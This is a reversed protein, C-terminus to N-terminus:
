KLRLLWEAQERFEVPFVAVIPHHESRSMRCVGDALIALYTKADAVDHVLPVDAHTLVVRGVPLWSLDQLCEELADWNGGFYDPFRLQKQLEALLDQKNAIRAPLTAYVVAGGSMNEGGFIFPAENM